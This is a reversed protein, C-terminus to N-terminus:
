QLVIIHTKTAGDRREDLTDSSGPMQQVRIGGAFVETMVLDSHLRLELAVRTDAPVVRRDTRTLDLVARGHLAHAKPDLQVELRYRDVRYSLRQPTTCGAFGLAALWLAIFTVHGLNRRERKVLSRVRM